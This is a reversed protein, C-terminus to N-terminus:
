LDYMLVQELPPSVAAAAPVVDRVPRPERELEIMLDAIAQSLPELSEFPVHKRVADRLRRLEDDMRPFQGQGVLCLRGVLKYLMELQARSQRGEQDVAKLSDYYKRRWDEQEAVRPAM